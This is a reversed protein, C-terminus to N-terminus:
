IAPMRGAVAAGVLKGDEERAILKVFGRGEEMTLAM